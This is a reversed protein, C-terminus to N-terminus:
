ARSHVGRLRRLSISLSLFFSFRFFLFSFFFLSFSFSSVRDIFQDIEINNEEEALLSFSTDPTRQSGPHREEGIRLFTGSARSYRYLQTILTSAGNLNVVQWKAAVSHIENCRSPIRNVWRCLRFFELSFNKGKPLFIKQVEAEPSFPPFSIFRPLLM